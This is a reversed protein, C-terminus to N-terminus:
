AASLAEELRDAARTFRAVVDEFTTSYSDNWQPITMGYLGLWKQAEYASAWLGGTRRAVAINLARAACVPGGPAKPIGQCWGYKKMITIANRFDDPELLGVM